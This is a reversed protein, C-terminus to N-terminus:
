DTTPSLKQKNKRRTEWSKFGLERMMETQEKKTKGKSRSKWSLRGLSQAELNPNKM